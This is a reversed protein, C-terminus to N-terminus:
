GVLIQEFLNYDEDQYYEVREVYYIKGGECIWENQTTKEGNVLFEDCDDINFCIDRGAELMEPHRSKDSSAGFFFMGTGEVIKYALSLKNEERSSEVVM